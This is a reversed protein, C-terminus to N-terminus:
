QPWGAGSRGGYASQPIAAAANRPVTSEPRRDVLLMVQDFGPFLAPIRACFRM